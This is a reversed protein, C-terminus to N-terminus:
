CADHGTDRRGRRGVQEGMGVHVREKGAELALRPFLLALLHLTVKVGVRLNPGLKLADTLGRDVEPTAASLDAIGTLAAAQRPMASSASIPPPVEPKAGLYIPRETHEDFVPLYHIADAAMRIVDRVPLAPDGGTHAPAPMPIDPNAVAHAPQNLEALTTRVIV